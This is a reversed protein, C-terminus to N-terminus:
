EVSARLRSARGSNPTICRPLLRKLAPEPLVTILWSFSCCRWAVASGFGISARHALVLVAGGVHAHILYLPYLLGVQRVIKKYSALYRDAQMNYRASIYILAIATVWVGIPVALPLRDAYPSVDHVATAAIQPFGTAVCATM